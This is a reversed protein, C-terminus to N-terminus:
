ISLSDCHVRFKFFSAAVNEDIKADRKTKCDRTDDLFARLEESRPPLGTLDLSIRRIFEADTCLEAPLIKMRKLKANVLEDVYNYEPSNNWEYGDRNGIVWGALAQPTLGRNVLEVWEQGADAGNPDFLLENLHVAASAQVALSWATLATLWRMSIQYPSPRLLHM